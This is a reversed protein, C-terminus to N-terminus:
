IKKEMNIMQLSLIDGIEEGRLIRMTVDFSFFLEENM